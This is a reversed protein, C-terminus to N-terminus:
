SIANKEGLIKMVKNNNFNVNNKLKIIIYSENPFILAEDVFDLSQIKSFIMNKSKDSQNFFEPKIKIVM